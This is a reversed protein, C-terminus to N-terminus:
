HEDLNLMSFTTYGWPRNKSQFVLLVINKSPFTNCQRPNLEEDTSLFM